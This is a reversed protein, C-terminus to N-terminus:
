GSSPSRAMALRYLEMVALRIARDTPPIGLLEGRHTGHATLHAFVLDGEAMLHDITFRLDPFAALYMEILGREAEPGHIEPMSPDHRVFDDTVFDGFDLDAANGSEWLAIWNRVLDKNEEASM